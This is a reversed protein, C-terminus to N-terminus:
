KGWSVRDHIIDIKVLEVSSSPILYPKIENLYEHITCDIQPRVWISFSRSDEPNEVYIITCMRLTANRIYSRIRDVYLDRREAFVPYKDRYCLIIVDDGDEPTYNTNIEKVLNELNSKAESVVRDLVSM